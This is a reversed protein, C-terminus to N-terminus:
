RPGAEYRSAVQARTFRHRRVHTAELNDELAETAAPHLVDERAEGAFQARVEPPLPLGAAQPEGGERARGAPGRGATNERAM